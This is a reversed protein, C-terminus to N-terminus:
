CRAMPFSSDRGQNPAADHVGTPEQFSNLDFESISGPEQIRALAKSVASKSMRASGSPVVVVIAALAIAIVLGIQRYIRGRM